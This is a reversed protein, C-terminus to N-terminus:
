GAPGSLLIKVGIAILVLGGAVEMRRGFRMGLRSGIVLGLLTMAAAVLGIVLCPLWIRVELLAFSVGVVLADISTAVSLAVLTLGRTPDARPGDGRRTAAEYIMRAGVLALLGFAAAHGYGGIWGTLTSGALWGAVPMLAQFLGFHFSLRFCQRASVGGLVVSSAAAVAFADMALGLAIALTNVIPMPAITDDRLGHCM